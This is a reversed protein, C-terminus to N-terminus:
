GTPPGNVPPLGCVNQVVNLGDLLGALFTGAADSGGVLCRHDWPGSSGQGSQSLKFRVSGAHAHHVQGFGMPAIVKLPRKFLLNGAESGKRRFHRTLPSRYKGLHDAAARPSGVDAPDPLTRVHRLRMTAIFKRQCSIALGADETSNLQVVIRM